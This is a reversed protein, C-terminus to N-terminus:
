ETMDSEKHGRPSDGVLIRQGHPNELCSYQFPHGNGEEPSRLEPISGSDGAKCDSQKRDSGGPFGHMCVGKSKSM